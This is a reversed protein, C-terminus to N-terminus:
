VRSLFRDIMAQRDILPALPQRASTGGPHGQLMHEEGAVRRLFVINRPDGAWTPEMDVMNIHHGVIGLDGPEAGRLISTIEDTM